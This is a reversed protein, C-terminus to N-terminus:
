MRVKEVIIQDLGIAVGELEDYVAPLVALFGVVTLWVGSTM